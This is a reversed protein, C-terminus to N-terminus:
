FGRLEKVSKPTLWQTMAQTKAPDTSVGENSIIHELYDVNDEGFSCKKGNAFFQHESLLRM